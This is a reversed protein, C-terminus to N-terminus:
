VYRTEARLACIKHSVRGSGLARFDSRLEVGAQQLECLVIAWLRRRLIGLVLFDPNRFYGEIHELTLSSALIVCAACACARKGAGGLVVFGM